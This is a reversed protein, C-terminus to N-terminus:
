PSGLALSQASDFSSATARRLSAAKKGAVIAEEFRRLEILATGMGGLSRHLLQDVPSMRFPANGAGCRKRRYGRLKTCGDETTGRTLHIPNLAVARDAMEIESESDGVM